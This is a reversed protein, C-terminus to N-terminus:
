NAVSQDHSMEEQDQSAEGEAERSSEEEHGM